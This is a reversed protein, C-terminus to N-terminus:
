GAWDGNVELMVPGGGKGSRGTSHGRGVLTKSESIGHMKLTQDRRISLVDRRINVRGLYKPRRKEAKSRQPFLAMSHLKAGAGRVSPHKGAESGTAGASRRYGCVADAPRPSGLRTQRIRVDYYEIIKLSGTQGSLLPGTPFVAQPGRSVLRAGSRHLDVPGSPGWSMRCGRQRVSDRWLLPPSRAPLKPADAPSSWYSM